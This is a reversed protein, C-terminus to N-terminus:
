QRASGSALRSGTATPQSPQNIINVQATISLESEPITLRYSLKELVGTEIKPNLTRMQEEIVEPTTTIYYSRAIEFTIWAVVALTSFILIPLLHRNNLLGM